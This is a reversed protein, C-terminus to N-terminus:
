MTTCVSLDNVELIWLSVKVRHSLRIRTTLSDDLKPSPMEKPMLAFSKYNTKITPTGDPSLFGMWFVRDIKLYFFESKASFFLAEENAVRDFEFSSMNSGLFGM